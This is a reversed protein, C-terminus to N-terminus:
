FLCRNFVVLLLAIRFVLVIAQAGPEPFRGEGFVDPSGNGVKRGEKLSTPGCALSRGKPCCKEDKKGLADNTECSEAIVFLEPLVRVILIRRPSQVCRNRRESKIVYCSFAFRGISSSM